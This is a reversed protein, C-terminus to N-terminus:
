GEDVLPPPLRVDEYLQELSLGAHYDGCDIALLGGPDLDTTEWVGEANRAFYEVQACCTCGRPLRTCSPAGLVLTYVQLIVLRHRLRRGPM